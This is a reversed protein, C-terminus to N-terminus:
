ARVGMEFLLFREQAHSCLLKDLKDSLAKRVVCCLEGKIREGLYSVSVLGEAGHRLFRNSIDVTLDFSLGPISSKSWGEPLGNRTVMLWDRVVRAVKNRDADKPLGDLPVQLWIHHGALAVGKDHRLPEFIRGIGGRLKYQEDPFPQILTHEIATTRGSEWTALADVAKKQREAEDPFILNKIKLGSDLSYGRLFNRVAIRGDDRSTM